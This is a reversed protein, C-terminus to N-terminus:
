QKLKREDMQKKYADMRQQVKRDIEEEEPTKSSGFFPKRTGDPNRPPRTLDFITLVVLIGAFCAWYRWSPYRGSTEAFSDTRFFRYYSATHYSMDFHKVHMHELRYASLM